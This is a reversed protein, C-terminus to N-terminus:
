SADGQFSAGDPIIDSGDARFWLHYLNAVDVVHTARPYVEIADLDGVTLEKIRQMTFWDIGPRGDNRRVTLRACGNTAPFQMALFESSIWLRECKVDASRNKARADEPWESENVERFVLRGAERVRVERLGKRRLARNM